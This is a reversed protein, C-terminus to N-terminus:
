AQAEDKAIQIEQKELIAQKEIANKQAVEAKNKNSHVERALSEVENKRKSVKIKEEAIKKSMIEINAKSSELKQLGNHYGKIVSKYEDKNNDLESMYCNLFDLYNKPTSYVKRRTKIEYDAAYRPISEHVKVFHPIIKELIEPECNSNMLQVEAVMTLAKSPWPFFWDITTNSVLGPFNRCRVRLTEGAPSMSLVIHLNNRFIDVIYNWIEDPSEGRKAKRCKEAMDNRLSMKTNDDFLSNIVGVTLMTNVLELFGEEIIQSDSFLFMTKENLLHELYLNKIDEIFNSEKYNKKLQIQFLKMGCMFCALKSLSRKGSGGVGVLMANGRPMKLVRILRVIHDLADDFLVLSAGEQMKEEEFQMLMEECKKRVPEFDSLDTYFEDVKLEPETPEAFMFDGFLIPDQCAYSQIEEGFSEKLLDPIMEGAVLKIDEKTILRDVFVRMCENRWLKLFQTKKTYQEPESRLLGQYIKSLDRLNFIYHFKLPSRPLADKIKEYLKYTAMTIDKTSEQIDTDFTKVHNSLIENYIRKINNENPFLINITSFLSLFRPDVSNYGGGPPLLAAM